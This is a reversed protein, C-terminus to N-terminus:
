MLVAVIVRIEKGFLYNIMEQNDKMINRIQSSGKKDHNIVFTLTDDGSSSRTPANNANRLVAVRDVLLAKDKAVLLDDHDYGSDVFKSIM